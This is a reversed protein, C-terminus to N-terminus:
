VKAGTAGRLACGALAYLLAAGRRCDELRETLGAVSIGVVAKREGLVALLVAAQEWRLGGPVVALPDAFARLDFHVVVKPPLVAIMGECQRKWSAGEALRGALEHAWFPFHRRDRASRLQDDRSAARYAVGVVRAVAELSLAQAVLAGDSLEPREAIHLLGLGPHAESLREILTPAEASDLLVPIQPPEFSLPGDQLAIGAQWTDGYTLDHLPLQHTASLLAPLAAAGSFVPFRVAAQPPVGFLHPSAPRPLNPDLLM